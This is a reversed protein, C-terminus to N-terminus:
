FSLSQLCQFDLPWSSLLAYAPQRKYVDLHTYSVAINPMFGLHFSLQIMFVIHFNAIAGKAHDLWEISAQIFLYLAGNAQEHRTAYSLLEAQRKYVDKM